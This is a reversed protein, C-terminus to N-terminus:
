VVLGYTVSPLIVKFYFDARATTPLFHLSRLLNLKQSFSKILEKVYVNWNLWTRRRFVKVQNVVSNGLSVAQLPGVFQGRMLIMNTPSVPTPYSWATLAADTMCSRFSSTWSLLRVLLFFKARVILDCQPLHDLPCLCRLNSISDFFFRLADTFPSRFHSIVPYVLLQSTSPSHNEYIPTSFLVLAYLPRFGRFIYWCSRGVFIHLLLFILVLLSWLSSLHLNDPFAWPFHRPHTILSCHM